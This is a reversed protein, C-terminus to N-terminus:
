AARVLTDIGLVACVMQALDRLEVPKALYHRVGVSRLQTRLRPTDYATLALVPIQPRQEHLSKILSVAAQSQAGPDVILLDVANELCHQRADGPSLAIAVEVAVPLLREIGRQTVLAVTPDGDFILIHHPSM